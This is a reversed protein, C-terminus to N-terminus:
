VVVILWAYYMVVPAVAIVKPWLRESMNWAYFAETHTGAFLVFGLVHRDDLELMDEAIVVYTIFLACLLSMLVVLAFAGARALTSPVGDGKRRTQIMLAWIVM